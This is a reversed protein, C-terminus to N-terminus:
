RKVLNIIHLMLFMKETESTEWRQREYIYRAIRDACEYARSDAKRVSELIGSEGLIVEEGKIQRMLYYRVHAIFRNFFVSDEDFECQYFYKVLKLISNTMETIGFIEEGTVSDIQANVIHLAFFAAESGPLERGLDEKIIELARVGMRYERSYFKKIEWELPNVIDMQNEHRKLAFSLHDLLSFFMNDNLHEFTERAMNVIKLVTRLEDPGCGTMLAAMQTFTMNNTPYFIKEIKGKDVRDGPYAQFGIGKGILVMQQGEETALLVNNNIRKEVHLM